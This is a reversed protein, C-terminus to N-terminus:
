YFIQSGTVTSLIHYKKIESSNNTTKIEEANYIHYDDRVNSFIFTDVLM